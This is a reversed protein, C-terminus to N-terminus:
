KPSSASKFTIDLEEAERVDPLSEFVKADVRTKINDMLDEMYDMREQMQAEKLKFKALEGQAGDIEVGIDNCAEKIVKM